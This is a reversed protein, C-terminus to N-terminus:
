GELLTRLRDRQEATLQPPNALLDGIAQTTAALAIERATQRRRAEGSRRGAASQQEHTREPPRAPM